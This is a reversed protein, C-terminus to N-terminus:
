SGPRAPRSACISGQSQCSRVRGSSINGPFSARFFIREGLRRDRHQLLQDGRGVPRKRNIPRPAPVWAHVCGRVVGHKWPFSVDRWPAWVSCCPKSGTRCSTSLTQARGPSNGALALKLGQTVAQLAELSSGLAKELPQNFRAVSDAPEGLKEAFAHPRSEWNTYWRTGSVSRRRIKPWPQESGCDLARMQLHYGNGVDGITQSIVLKSNTKGCIPPRDRLTLNTTPPLNLQALTGLVKDM